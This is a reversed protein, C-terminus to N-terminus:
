ATEYHEVNQGNSARKKTSKACEGQRRIPFRLIFRCAEQRFRDIDPEIHYPHKQSLTASCRDEFSLNWIGLAIKSGTNV